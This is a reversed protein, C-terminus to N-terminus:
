VHFNVESYLRGLERHARYFATREKPDTLKQFATLVEDTLAPIEDKKPLDSQPKSDM